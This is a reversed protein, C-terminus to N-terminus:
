AQEAAVQLQGQLRKKNLNFAREAEKLELHIQEVRQKAEQEKAQRIIDSKKAAKEAAVAQKADELAKEAAELRRQPETDPDEKSEAKSRAAPARLHKGEIGTSLAPEVRDGEPTLLEYKGECSMSKVTAPGWNSSQTEGPGLLMVEVSAGNEHQQTECKTKPTNPTNSRQTPLTLPKKGQWADEFRSLDGEAMNHLKRTTRGGVKEETVRRHGLQRQTVERAKGTSDTYVEYSFMRSGADSQAGLAADSRIKSFDQLASVEWRELPSCSAQRNTHRNANCPCAASALAFCLLGGFFLLTTSHKM